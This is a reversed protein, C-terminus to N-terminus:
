PGPRGPPVTPEPPPARHLRVPGTLTLEVCPMRDFIRRICYFPGWWPLRLARNLRVACLVWKIVARQNGPLNSWREVYGLIYPVRETRSRVVRARAPAELWPRGEVTYVAVDPAADMNAVWDRKGPYGSLVIRNRGDWSYTTELIRPIGTRRGTHSVRVVFSANLIRRFDEDLSM